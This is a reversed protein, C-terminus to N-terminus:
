TIRYDINEFDVLSIFRRGGSSRPPEQLTATLVYDVGPPVQEFSRLFRFSAGELSLGDITERLLDLIEDEAVLTFERRGSAHERRLLAAINERIQRFLRHTYVTYHYAKRAKETAGKFTLLYRTRNWDLQSIKIFGKRVLRRILLNTTGLSMGLSKSLSRQTHGPQRSIELILAYEKEALGIRGPVNASM